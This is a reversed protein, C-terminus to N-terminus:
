MRSSPVGEEDIIRVIRKARWMGWVHSAHFSELDLFVQMRALNLHSSLKAVLNCSLKSQSM